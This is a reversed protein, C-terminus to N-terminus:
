ILVYSPVPGLFDRDSSIEIWYDRLDGKDPILRESGDWYAGFGAEAMEQKNHLGLALIFQRWIKNRRAGGLQFCLTDAVDLRMKTDSMRCTHGDGGTYVKRLRVALDQRMEPTLGEFDLLLVRNVPRSWITELRQEYSHVIHKTYGKVQNRLWPHRQDVAPLPVMYRITVSLMMKARSNSRKAEDECTVGYNGVYQMIDWIVDMHADSKLGLPNVHTGSIRYEANIVVYKLSVALGAAHVKVELYDGEHFRRIVEIGSYELVTALTDELQTNKDLWVHAKLSDIERRACVSDLPVSKANRMKVDIVRTSMDAM